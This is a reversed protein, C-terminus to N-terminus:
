QKIIKKKIITNNYEMYLIFIGSPYKSLDVKSESNSIIKKGISNYIDIKIEKSTIINIIGKTPNPYVLIESNTITRKPFNDIGEPWENECYNYTLQCINDWETTCCYDDVDIVWAYCPDNLWYPIGPGGYCGADYL